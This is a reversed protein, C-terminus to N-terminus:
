SSNGGAESRAQQGRVVKQITTAAMSLDQDTGDFCKTVGSVVVEISTTREVVTKWARDLTQDQENSIQKQSKTLRKVLSACGVDEEGGHALAGLVLHASVAFHEGGCIPM